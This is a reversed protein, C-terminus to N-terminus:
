GKQSCEQVERLSSLSVAGEYYAKGVIAGYLGMRSLTVLDDVGRIGGSAILKIDACSLIKEYLEFGPGAMMGDKAIDTSICYRIGLPLYSRIFSVVDTTSAESWGGTAVFGNRCDAGLIIREKYKQIWRVAEQPKKVAASGCTVFSAGASFAADLAELTYMGGGYDITLSTKSAIAELIKLNRPEKARAGELDVLHLRTLGADEFKRATDLPSTDYVSQRSYDGECLRVCKGEIVDIAPIVFM